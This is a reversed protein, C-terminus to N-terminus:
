GAAKRKLVAEVAQLHAPKDVDWAIGATSMELAGCPADLLRSVAREAEAITLRGTLAKMLFSPGLIKAMAMPNKRARYFADFVGSMREIVGGPAIVANGATYKGERVRAYTRKGEPFDREIIRQPAVSYVGELKRDRAGAMLEEFESSTVLPVDGTCIIAQQGDIARTAAVANKMMTGADPLAEANPAIENLQATTEPGCAVLIREIGQAGRMAEYVWSLMPKGGIPLLARELPCDPVTARLEPPTEGGALIIAHM